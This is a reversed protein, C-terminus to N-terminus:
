EPAKTCNDKYLSSQVFVKTYPCKNCEHLFTKIFLVKLVNFPRQIPIQFLFGIKYLPRWIPLGRYLFTRWSNSWMSMSYSRTEISGQMEVKICLIVRWWCHDYSIASWLKLDLLLRSYHCFRDIPSRTDILSGLHGFPHAYWIYASVRLYKRCIYMFNFKHYVKISVMILLKVKPLWNSCLVEIYDETCKKTILLERGTAILWKGRAPRFFLCIAKFVTFAYM